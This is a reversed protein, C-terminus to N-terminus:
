VLMEETQSPISLPRPSAHEKVSDAYSRLAEAYAIVHESHDSDLLYHSLWATDGYQKIYSDVLACDENSAGGYVALEFDMPNLKVVQVGYESRILVNYTDMEAITEVDESLFGIEM